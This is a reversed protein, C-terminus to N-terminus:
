FISVLIKPSYFVKNNNYITVKTFNAETSEASIYIKESGPEFDTYLLYM